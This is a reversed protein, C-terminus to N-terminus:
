SIMENKSTSPSITSISDRTTPISNVTFFARLRPNCIQFLLEFRSSIAINIGSAAPPINQRAM